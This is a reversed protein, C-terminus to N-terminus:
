QLPQKRRRRGPLERVDALLGVARGLVVPPTVDVARLLLAIATERDDDGGGAVEWVLVGLADGGAGVADDAVRDPWVEIVVFCDYDLQPPDQSEAAPEALEERISM